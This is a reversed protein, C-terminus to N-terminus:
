WARLVGPGLAGSRLAGCPTFDSRRQNEKKRRGTIREISHACGNQISAPYAGINPRFEPGANIGQSFLMARRSEGYDEGPVIRSRLDIDTVLDFRAGFEANAAKL